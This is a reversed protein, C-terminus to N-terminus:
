DCQKGKAHELRRWPAIEREQSSPLMKFPHRSSFSLNGRNSFYHVGSFIYTGGGRREGLAGKGERKSVSKLLPDRASNRRSAWCSMSILSLVVRRVCRSDIGSFCSFTINSYPEKQMDKLHIAIFQRYNESTDPTNLKCYITYGARYLQSSPSYPRYPPLSTCM